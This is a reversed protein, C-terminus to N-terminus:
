LGSTYEKFFQIDEMVAQYDMQLSRHLRANELSIAGFEALSQAFEVESGNFRRRSSTYLRMAGIVKDQLIIPVSLISAIGEKEAEGPYQARPDRAADEIWVVEGAMTEAISRDTSLLGKNLYEDSLGKSCVINLSRSKQSVIRLSCAKVNLIEVAKDVILDLIEQTHLTSTLAKAVEKIAKLHEAEILIKELLKANEVAIGGQEALAMAFEIEEPTFDREEACYLRIVGIIKERVIIPVSVITVIGEKTAAQPYQIRPDTRSDRIVVVQGELAAAMSKQSDVTGKRLYEDSLGCSAATKLEKGADDLLLITSGRVGFAKVIGEALLKLRQRVSLTMSVTKSFQQFTSLFQSERTKM